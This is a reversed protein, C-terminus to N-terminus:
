IEHNTEKIFNFATDKKKSKYLLEVTDFPSIVKGCNYVSIVLANRWM